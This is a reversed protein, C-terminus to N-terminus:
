VAVVGEERLALGARQAQWHGRENLPIDTHGQIRSDRNWATEGHRIVVLRTLDQQM